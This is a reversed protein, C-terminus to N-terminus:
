PAVSFAGIGYWTQFCAGGTPVPNAVLPSSCLSWQAGVPITLNSPNHDLPVLGYNPATSDDGIFQKADLIETAYATSSQRYM